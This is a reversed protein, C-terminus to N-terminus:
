YSSCTTSSSSSSPAPANTGLSSSASQPCLNTLLQQEREHARSVVGLSSLLFPHSPESCIPGTMLWSACAVVALLFAPIIRTTWRTPAKHSRAESRPPCKSLQSRKTPTAEPRHGMTAPGCLCTVVPPSVDRTRAPPHNQRRRRAASFPSDNPKTTTTTTAFDKKGGGM